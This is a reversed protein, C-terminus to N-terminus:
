TRRMLAVVMGVAPEAGGVLAHARAAAGKDGPLASAAIQLAPSVHGARTASASAPPEGLLYIADGEGLAVELEGGRVAEPEGVRDGRVPLPAPVAGAHHVLPFRAGASALRLRGGEEIQVGLVRARRGGAIERDLRQLLGSPSLKEDCRAHAAAAASLESATFLQELRDGVVEVTWLLAGRERLVCGM